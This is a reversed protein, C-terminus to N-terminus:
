TLGSGWFTPAGESSPAGSTGPVFSPSYLVSREITKTQRKRSPSSNADTPPSWKAEAWQINNRRNTRKYQTPSEDEESTEIGKISRLININGAREQDCRSSPCNLGEDGVIM